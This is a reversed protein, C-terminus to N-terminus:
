TGPISSGAGQPWEWAGSLFGLTRTHGRRVSGLACPGRCRAGPGMVQQQILRTTSPLAAASPGGLSRAQPASPMGPHARTADLSHPLRLALSPHSPVPPVPVEYCDRCTWRGRRYPEGTGVGLRVVRFRSGPGPPSAAESSVGTIQFGSKKRSMAGVWLGRAGWPATGVVRPGYQPRLFPKSRHQPTGAEAPARQGTSLDRCWSTGGWVGQGAGSM